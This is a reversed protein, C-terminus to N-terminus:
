SSVKADFQLPISSLFDSFFKLLSQSPVLLLFQSPIQFSVTFHSPFKPSFQFHFLFSDLFSSISSVLFSNPLLYSSNPFNILLFKHFFNPLKYSTVPFSNISFVLSAHIRTLFQSVIQTGFNSLFESYALFKSPKKWLNNEWM